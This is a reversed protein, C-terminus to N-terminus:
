TRTASIVTAQAPNNAEAIGVGQSSVYRGISAKVATKGNGFLDYAAGIRPSVDKWNPVNDVRDFHRADVYLGAEIDQDLNYGNFYDFRLGLNLTLKRM